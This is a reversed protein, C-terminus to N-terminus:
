IRLVVSSLVALNPPSPARAASTEMSSLSPFAGLSEVPVDMAVGSTFALTVPAQAPHAQVVIQHSCPAPAPAQRGPAEHHHHCPPVDPDPTSATGSGNCPEAACLAACQINMVVLAFVLLVTLRGKSISMGVVMM